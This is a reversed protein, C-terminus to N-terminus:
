AISTRLHRIENPTLIKDTASDYPSEIRVTPDIKHQQMHLGAALEVPMPAVRGVFVDVHRFQAYFRLGLYVLAAPLLVYFMIRKQARGTEM